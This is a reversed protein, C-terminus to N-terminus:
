LFVRVCMAFVDLHFLVRDLVTHFAQGLLDNRLVSLPSRLVEYTYGGTLMGVVNRGTGACSRNLMAGFRGFQSRFRSNSLFSALSSRFVCSDICVRM